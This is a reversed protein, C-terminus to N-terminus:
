AFLAGYTSLFMIMELWFVFAFILTRTLIATILVEILILILPWYNGSVLFIWLLACIACLGAFISHWMWEKDNEEWGPTLGVCILYVPTLFGLFQLPNDIGKDILPPTLLFASVITIVSWLNLGFIKRKGWITGYASYSSLIGFIFVNLIIFGFFLITSIVTFYIM